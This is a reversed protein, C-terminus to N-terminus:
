IRTEEKVGDNHAGARATKARSSLIPALEDDACVVLDKEGPEPEPEFDVIEEEVVQYIEDLGYYGWCSDEAVFERRAPDWAEAVWGFVNGDLWDAWVKKESEAMDSLAAQDWGGSPTAGFRRCRDETTFFWVPKGRPGGDLKWRYLADGPVSSESEAEQFVLDMAASPRAPMDERVIRVRRDAMRAAESSLAIVNM